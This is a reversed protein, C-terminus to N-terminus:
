VFVVGIDARIRCALTRGAQEADALSAADGRAELRVGLNHMAQADGQLAARRWWQEAESSEDGQDFLLVGLNVMNPPHRRCPRARSASRRSGSQRRGRGSRCRRPPLPRPRRRSRLGDVLREGAPPHGSRARGRHGRGAAAAALVCAAGGAGCGVDILTGPAGSAMLWEVAAEVWGRDFEANVGLTRVWREAM